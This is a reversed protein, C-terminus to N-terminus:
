FSLNEVNIVFVVCRRRLCTQAGSFLNPTTPQDFRLFSVDFYIWYNIKERAFMYRLKVRAGSIHIRLLLVLIKSRNRFNFHPWSNWEILFLLFILIGYQPGFSTLLSDLIYQIVKVPSDMCKRETRERERVWMEREIDGASSDLRLYICM